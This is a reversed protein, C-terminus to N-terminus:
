LIGLFDIHLYQQPFQFLISSIYRNKNESGVMAKLCKMAPRFDEEHQCQHVAFQKLIVTAGFLSPGLKECEQICCKTTLLKVEGLYKPLQEKINVKMQLCAQTFTGDLLIQYPPFYGFNTKFFSLVKNVKKQRKIKM